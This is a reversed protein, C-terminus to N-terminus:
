VRGLAREIRQLNRDLNPDRTAATLALATFAPVGEDDWNGAPKQQSKLWANGRAIAQRMEQKLSEYNGTEASAVATGLIILTSLLKM